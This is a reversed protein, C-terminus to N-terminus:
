KPKKVMEIFLDTGLCYLGNSTGVYMRDNLPCLCLVLLDPESLLCQIENSGPKSTYLGSGTAFILQGQWLVFDFVYSLEFGQYRLLQGEEANRVTIEKVATNRRSCSFELIKDNTFTTRQYWTQPVVPHRGTGLTNPKM